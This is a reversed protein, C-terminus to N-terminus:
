RSDRQLRRAMLFEAYALDMADDVDVSSEADMIYPTLPLSFIDGDPLWDERRACYLAGNLSYTPGADQRRRPIPVGTPTRLLGTEDDIVLSWAPPHRDPAVSVVARVGDEDLLRVGADVHAATRLPSTPQLYVLIGEPASALAHAIVEAASSDDRALDAPRAIVDAGRAASADALEPSDTSVVVRDVVSSDRAAEITWAILERGALPALNKRPLGKSGGRAPILAVVDRDGLM